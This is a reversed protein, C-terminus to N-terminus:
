PSSKVLVYTFAHWFPGAGAGPTGGVAVLTLGAGNMFGATGVTSSSLVGALMTTSSPNSGNPPYTRVQVEGPIGYDAYALKQFPPYPGIAGPLLDPAVSTEMANSFGPQLRVDVAPLTASASVVQLSIHTPDTIRSMGLLVVSTTPTTSSYGM